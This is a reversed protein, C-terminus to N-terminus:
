VCSPLPLRWDLVVNGPDLLEKTIDTAKFHYPSATHIVADFPPDSVVAKDFAASLNAFLCVLAFTEIPRINGGPQAIDEVIAFDLKDSSFSPHAEKIAVVKERSRVTTVVSHGRALLIDLVHAAIFGNGGTLTINAQKSSYGQLLSALPHRVQRIAPITDDTLPLPTLSYPYPCLPHCYRIFRPTGDPEVSSM